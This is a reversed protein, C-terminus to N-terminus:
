CSEFNMIDCAGFFLVSRRFFDNIVFFLPADVCMHVSYFHKM